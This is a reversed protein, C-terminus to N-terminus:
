IRLLQLESLSPPARGGAAAGPIHRLGDADPATTQWTTAPLAPLDPGTSKGAAACTADAHDLHGRDHEGDPHACPGKAMEDAPMVHGSTVAQSEPAAASPTLGHMVFLGAVVGLVLLLVRLGDPRPVTHPQRRMYAM